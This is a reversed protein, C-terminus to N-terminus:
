VKGQWFARLTAQGIGLALDFPEPHLIAIAMGDGTPLLIRRDDEVGSDALAKRVITNLSDIVEVQAEITRGQTFRVIDLFVYQVLSPGNEM